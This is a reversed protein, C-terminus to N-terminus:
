AVQCAVRGCVPVVRPHAVAVHQWQASVRARVLLKGTQHAEILDQRMAARASAIPILLAGCFESNLSSRHSAHDLQPSSKPWYFRPERCHCCKVLPCAVQVKDYALLYIQQTM